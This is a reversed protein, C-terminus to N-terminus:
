DAKKNIGSASLHEAPTKYVNRLVETHSHDAKIINLLGKVAGYALLAISALLGLVISVAAVVAQLTETSRWHPLHQYAQM